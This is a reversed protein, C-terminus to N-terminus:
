PPGGDDFSTACRRTASAWPGPVWVRTGGRQRCAAAEPPEDFLATVVGWISPPPAAVPANSTAESRGRLGAGLVAVAAAGAALGYVLRRRIPRPIACHPCCRADDLLAQGCRRCRRLHSTM